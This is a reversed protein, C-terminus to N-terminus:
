TTTIARIKGSDILFGLSAIVGDNGGGGSDGTIGHSLTHAGANEYFLRGQYDVSMLMSQHNTPDPLAQITQIVQNDQLLSLRGDCVAQPTGDGLALSYEGVSVGTRTLHFHNHNEVLIPIHTSRTIITKNVTPNYLTDYSNYFQVPARRTGAAIELPEFKHDVDVYTQSSTGLFRLSAFDFNNKLRLNGQVWTIMGQLLALPIDQDSRLCQSPLGSFENSIAQCSAPSESTAQFTQLVDRVKLFIELVDREGNRIGLADSVLESLYLKSFRGLREGTVTRSVTLPM